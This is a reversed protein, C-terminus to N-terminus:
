KKSFFANKQFIFTLIVAFSRWIGIANQKKAWWLIGSEKIFDLNEYLIKEKEQKIWFLEQINKLCTTFFGVLEILLIIWINKHKESM